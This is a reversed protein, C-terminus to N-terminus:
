SRLGVITGTTVRNAPSALFGIVEAIDAPQSWSSRDAGPMAARNSPTDIISPAIANVLIGQGVLEAAAAATMAAVAAKAAVYAIMGPGPAAVARSVVNVIRGEGEGMRGAAERTALFATVANIQWQATLEALSTAALPAMAFGGALHISAWIPPLSRYFSAVAAEDTLDIGAILEAGELAAAGEGRIPVHCRAGRGALHAVVAQGLAGRGGTVVVHRGAFDENRPQERPEM